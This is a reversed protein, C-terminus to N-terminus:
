TLTRVQRDTFTYYTTKEDAVRIVKGMRKAKTNFELRRLLFRLSPPIERVRSDPWAFCIVCYRNDVVVKHWFDRENITVFTPQTQRHLLEPIADDKIVSNPRLDTIFLVRGRYWKAIERELNRGLLQEDLVIM